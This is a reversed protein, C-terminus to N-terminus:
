FKRTNLGCITLFYKILSGNHRFLDEDLSSWSACVLPCDKTKIIIRSVLCSWPTKRLWSYGLDILSGALEEQKFIMQMCVYLQHCLCINCFLFIPACWRLRMKVSHTTYPITKPTPPLTHNQINKFILLPAQKPIIAM